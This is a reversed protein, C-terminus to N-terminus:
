LLLVGDSSTYVLKQLEMIEQSRHSNEELLKLSARIVKHMIHRLNQRDDGGITKLEDSHQELIHELNHPQCIFYANNLAEDRYVPSLNALSVLRWLKLKEDSSYSWKATLKQIATFLLDHSKRSTAPFAEILSLFASVPIRAADVIKWLCSDVETAVEEWEQDSLGYVDKFYSVLSMVTHPEFRYTQLYDDLEHLSGGIRQELFANIPELKELIESDAVKMLCGVHELLTCWYQSSLELWPRVPTVSRELMRTLCIVVWCKSQNSKCEVMITHDLWGKVKRGQRCKLNLNVEDAVLEDIVELIFHDPLSATRVLIDTLVQCPSTQWSNSSGSSSLPIPASLTKTDSFAKTCAVTITKLCRSEIYEDVPSQLRQYQQLFAVSSRWRDFVNKHLFTETSDILETMGLFEAIARIKAINQLTYNPKILYCFDAAVSFAQAGGILCNLDIRRLFDTPYDESCNFLSRFYASANLLPLIHLNFEKGEVLVTVDSFEGTRRMRQLWGSFSRSEKTAM